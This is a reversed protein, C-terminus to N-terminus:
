RVGPLNRCFSLGQWRRTGAVSLLTQGWATGRPKQVMKLARASGNLLVSFPLLAWVPFGRGKHSEFGM